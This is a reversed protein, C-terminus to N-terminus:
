PEVPPPSTLISLSKVSKGSSTTLTPFPCLIHSSTSTRKDAISSSFLVSIAVLGSSSAASAMVAVKGSRCADVAPASPITTSGIAPAGVSPVLTAVFM